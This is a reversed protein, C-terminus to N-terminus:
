GAEIFRSVCAVFADPQELQPVHGAREILELRAGPIAACYARAYDPTALGDHAGWVLLTPVDIRHLRHRLKPDHMYPEWLYLAAAERNQAQARLEDDSMQEYRPAFRAPDYFTLKAVEDPPLAYIDPFDRTERDHFRCGVADVLILKAIRATNKIAIAAAAWGGMSFGLLVVERLDLQELLDLYLYALDDVSDLWAPLASGGFGPHTPAVVRWRRALQEVFPANVRPGGAGHLLLLPQGNGHQWCDITVGAVTLPSLPPLTATM